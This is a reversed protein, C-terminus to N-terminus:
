VLWGGSTGNSADRISWKDVVVSGDLSLLAEMFEKFLKKVASKLQSQKREGEYSPLNSAGRAFKEVPNYEHDQQKSFHPEWVMAAEAAKRLWQARMAANNSFWAFALQVEVPVIQTYGNAVTTPVSFADTPQLIAFIVVRHTGGVKPLQVMSCGGGARAPGRHLVGGEICALTGRKVEQRWIDEDKPPDM